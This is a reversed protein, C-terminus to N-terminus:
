ALDTERHKLINNLIYGVKSYFLHNTLVLFNVQNIFKESNNMHCILFHDFRTYDIETKMEQTTTQAM